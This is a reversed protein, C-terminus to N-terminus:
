MFFRLVDNKVLQVLILFFVIMVLRHILLELAVSISKGRLKEIVAYIIAGGDLCPIPASNMLAVALSFCGIFNTFVIFGQSLSAISAAFLGIPGLLLSFSLTGTLLQKLVMLFFYLLHVVNHSAMSLSSLVSDARIVQKAAHLNPTVGLQSLLSQRSSMARVSSLHLVTKKLQGEPTKLVVTSNKKGWGIILEQGVEQWSSVDHGNIAVIQEKPLIGAQAALSNPEVRQVQPIKHQIGVYFVVFFALWATIMNAFVGSVLIIIRQGIPKKDFCSDFESPAVPSIRTNNLQVYGGLLWRGLVWECGRASKWQFIPQGFGIAVRKIKVQL